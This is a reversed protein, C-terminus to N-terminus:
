DDPVTQVGVDGAAIAVSKLIAHVVMGPHLDMARASRRTIRALIVEKGVRLRVLVGPGTGDTVDMVQASLINLASIGEPRTHALIVDHAEVRVRVHAGVPWPGRPLFLTEGAVAVASLGDTHHARVYGSIVAGAGRAGTATIARPDALVEAVPGARAVHGQDLAVVHHALRAIESVQHSVYIIPVRVADRLREIYPLIDAKRADDLAALPEDMLLLRPRSLLARGIAVRQTEGGSLGSIRRALLPGLGLMDAMDGLDARGAGVFRAGYLLNGRVDLHPFLRTDQFVYGVRRRHPPVWIRRATDTLMVDDAVIRATQPRFVGAISKVVTTKGAGSRGLIATVGGSTEFTIDLTFGDDYRHKLIVHLNMAGGGAAGRPGGDM